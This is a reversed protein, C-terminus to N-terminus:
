SPCFWNGLTMKRGVKTDSINDIFELHISQKSFNMNASTQRVAGVVELVNLHGNTAMRANTTLVTNKKMVYIKFLIFRMIFHHSTLSPTATSWQLGTPTHIYRKM